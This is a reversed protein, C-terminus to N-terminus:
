CAESKEVEGGTARWSMLGRHLHYIRRYGAGRLAALSLRSRFGGDCYVLLPVEPPIKELGDRQPKGELLFPVNIAGPVHGHDFSTKPRVDIVTLESMERFLRLAELAHINRVFDETSRDHFHRRSLLFETLFYVGVLCALGVGITIMLTM